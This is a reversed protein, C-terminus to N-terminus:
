VHWSVVSRGVVAGRFLELLQVMPSLSLIPRLGPPVAALPYVIMHVLVVWAVALVLTFRQRAAVALLATVAIVCRFVRTVPKM